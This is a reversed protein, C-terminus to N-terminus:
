ICSGAFIRSCASSIICEPELLITFINFSVCAVADVICVSYVEHLDFFLTSNYISEM